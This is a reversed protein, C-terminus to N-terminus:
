RAPYIANLFQMTYVDTIAVTKTLVQQERLTKEMGLWVEPRMWGIHDEGTNVTPLSATMKTVEFAPDADSRYKVVMAGIKTPNEVAWAWGKLTARTVRLVLDPNSAILDDNTFLTDSYFHIGYDDPYIVNIQYGAARAALVENTLIVTRVDVAGSYFANLDPTINAIQYQDPRIDVKAMMTRLRPLGSPGTQITKGVFDQPSTIGSSALAIFVSPSRRAIVAIARVPKDDARAVLLDDSNTVSFQAAGDLVPAIFDVTPGGELFTVALGEAAYYGNQDAAYFGAFQAQHTWRLQITIPTLPPTPTRGCAPVAFLIMVLLALSILATRNMIPEETTASAQACSNSAFLYYTDCDNVLFVGIAGSCYHHLPLM